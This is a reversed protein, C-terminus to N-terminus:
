SRILNSRIMQLEFLMPVVSDPKPIELGNEEAVEVAVAVNTAALDQNFIDGSSIPGPNASAFGLSTWSTGVRGRFNDANAALIEYRAVEEVAAKFAAGRLLKAWFPKAFKHSEQRMLLEQGQTQMRTLTQLEEAPNQLPGRFVQTYQEGRAADVMSDNVLQERIQGFMQGCAMFGFYSLAQYIRQERDIGPITPQADTARIVKEVVSGGVPTLERKM